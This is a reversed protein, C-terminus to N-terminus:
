RGPVAARHPLCSRRRRGRLDYPGLHERGHDSEGMAVNNDDFADIRYVLSGAGDPVNDDTFQTSGPGPPDISPIEELDDASTGRLVKYGSVGLIPVNYGRYPM